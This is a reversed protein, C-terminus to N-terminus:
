FKVELGFRYTRMPPTDWSPSSGSEPDIYDYAAWTLLNNGSAYLRINDIGVKRTWTKPLTFGFTLNKLRVYDGSYLRRTTAYDTMSISRGVVFREISTEDGEKQWRKRYYIPINLTGDGGHELKSASGDYNWAGFSFNVNFNLDFWKYSISNGLGGTITPDACQLIVKEASRPDKTTEKNLNGNEDTTNKYFMPEGDAPDIGAFEIMYYTSYPLGVKHISTGSTVQKLDGDLKLIKNANHGLNLSTSWRFDKTEINTSRIELEYGKNQLKGINALYSSFGTALSLPRSYLLNKTTRVYYEFTVNLRNDFFGLDIGSNFNYNTEWTLEKNELQSQTIGPNDNYNSTLSSLGMYGYYSSPLTGNVGYSVRLKLDSLWNQLPKMFSESSVRWAGSLSWFNGWRNERALRSSGDTRWSAGLYYKNDYDYNARTIYSVIRTTSNSGGMSQYVVGNNVEPKDWRAFNSITTGLGDSEKSNIEYGVLLDLNHKKKIKTQYTLINSWTMNTIDNYDKSFRGNDDDGDSTRPDKWARSKNMVFDYSFTSAFKIGKWIDFSAYVTNFSRTAYERKFNYSNSLMPNRDDLKILARNWTGDENWIPDSPTAGNRTGYIPSTYSTGESYTDQNVKSFQIKAGINMWKAMQYDVNLRASIRELGSNITVGDQKMYGISTYYKIKEQGGSASFEYNQHSGNRFLYDDWNVFGCWPIPAYQDINSDAYAWAENETMGQHLGVEDDTKGSYTLAYNRLGEHILNRREQGGMLERFPMAFNSFGWDSKLKFVPKGAKGQKTTIIVVGNAARSGYLSAAAADKIVTISEIDSTNLTSMVDLGSDSGSAGINGSLVPVGDVVYLPSNSANFSGMGRIRISTSSGPIGSGTNVSVGPAAGELMQQFSVNPVDKVADTKVISASGAYASKKFTGYGTVIVEDLLNNDVKLIISMPKGPTAVVEQSTYGIYSVMLTVKKDTVELHFNGDMDTMMGNTTGKVIVNAGIIPEGSDEIVKGTITYKERAVTETRVPEAKRIAIVGDHVTYTLGSNRLCKNLVESILENKVDLNEVRVKKADNTSYIFTFDTQKQIEWLVENLTVNRFKATVTTQAFISARMLGSTTICLFLFMMCLRKGYKGFRAVNRLKEM